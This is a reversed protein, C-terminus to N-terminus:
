KVHFSNIIKDFAANKLPFIEPPIATCTIRYIYGDKELWVERIKQRTQTSNCGIQYINEYAQVGDVSITKSSIQQYGYENLTRTQNHISENYFEKLSTSNPARTKFIKVNVQTSEFIGVVSKPYDYLVGTKWNLPYDFSIGNEDYHQSTLCGSIMIVTFISLIIILFNSLKMTMSTKSTKM